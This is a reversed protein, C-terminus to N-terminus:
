IWVSGLLPYWAYVLCVVFSSVLCSIHVLQRRQRAVANFLCSSILRMGVLYTDVCPYVLLVLVGLISLCSEQELRVFIDRAFTMLVSIMVCPLGFITCVSACPCASWPLWSLPLYRLLCVWLLVPDRLASWSLESVCSAIALCWLLISHISITNSMATLCGWLASTHTPIHSGVILCACFHLNALLLGVYM